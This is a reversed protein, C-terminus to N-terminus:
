DESVAIRSSLNKQESIAYPMGGKVRQKVSTDYGTAYFYYNGNKLGTFTGTVLSDQNSCAVSDDYVGNAPADLTNYRVYLKANIINKAVEHHQPYLAVAANGGKGAGTPDKDPKCSAAIVCLILFAYKM